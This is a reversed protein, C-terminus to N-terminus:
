INEELPLVVGICAGVGDCENMVSVGYDSGFYSKLRKHINLLGVGTNKVPMSGSELLEIINEPVGEGNDKVYIFLNNGQQKAGVTICCEGVIKEVTYKIANEVIPQLTLKPIRCQNFRSDINININLREEYRFKQITIYDNLLEREQEVTIIDDKSSISTRLLNGLSQTMQAIDDQGNVRATWNITDLTNYLFHPNIQMQLMKLQTEKLQIKNLYDQNILENIKNIMFYCENWLLYIENKTVEASIPPPSIEFVGASVDRLEDSLSNVSSSFGKALAHALAFMIILVAFLLAFVIYQMRYLGKATEGYDTINYYIWGTKASETHAVFFQKGDDKVVEFNKNTKLSAKIDNFVDRNAYSYIYRNATDTIVINGTIDGESNIYRVLKDTNICIVLTGLSGDASTYLSRVSLLMNSGAPNPMWFNVGERSSGASIIQKSVDRDFANVYGVNIPTQGDPTFIMIADIYNYAAMNRAMEVNINSVASIKQYVDEGSLKKIDNRLNNNLMISLSLNEMKDLETETTSSFMKLLNVNQTYVLNNYYFFVYRFIGISMILFIVLIASILLVLQRRIPQNSFFTLKKM